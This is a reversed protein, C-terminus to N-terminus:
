KIVTSPRETSGASSLATAEILRSRTRSKTLYMYDIGKKIANKLNAAEGREKQAFNEQDTVDTFKNKTV